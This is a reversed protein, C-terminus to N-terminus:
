LHSRLYIAACAIASYHMNCCSVIQGAGHIAQAELCGLPWIPELEYWLHVRFKPMVRLRPLSCFLPNAVDYRRIGSRLKRDLYSSQSFAIGVADAVGERGEGTERRAKWM